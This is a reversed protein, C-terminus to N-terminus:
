CFGKCSDPHSCGKVLITGGAVGPHLPLPSYSRRARVAEVPAPEPPLPLPRDRVRSPQAGSHNMLLRPNVRRRAVGLTGWPGLGPGNAGWVAGLGEGSGSLGPPLSALAPTQFVSVEGEEAVM